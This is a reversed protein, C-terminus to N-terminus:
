RTITNLIESVELQQFYNTDIFFNKFVTFASNLHAIQYVTIKILDLECSKGYKSKLITNLFYYWNIPPLQKSISKECSERMCKILLSLKSTKLNEDTDDSKVVSIAINVVERLVSTNDLYDYNNPVLHCIFFSVLSELM